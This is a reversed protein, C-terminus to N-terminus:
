DRRVQRSNLFSRQLEEDGMKAAISNVVEKALDLHERARRSDGRTEHLEAQSLIVKWQLPLAEIKEAIARAEGLLIEAEELSKEPLRGSAVDKMLLQAKTRKTIVIYKKLEEEEGMSALEECYERVREFDGKDLHIEILATLVEPAAETTQFQTLMERAQGLYDLASEDDGLLHHDLGISALVGTKETKMGMEDFLSLAEAHYEMAKDIDYVGQYVNGIGWLGFAAGDKDGIERNIALSERYSELAQGYDGMQLHTDGTNILAIGVNMKDGVENSIRLAETHYQLAEAYDGRAGLINGVNTLCGLEGVKFGIERNITLSEEHHRMAEGYDGMGWNVNGINTLSGAIGRRYGMERRLRLTEKHCELAEDYDGRSWHINGIMSLSDGAGMKDGAERRLELAESIYELADTYDGRSWYVSGISELSDAVERRDGLERRIDLAMEHFSLGGDYDGRRSRIAGIAGLCAGVGKQFGIKEYIQRSREVYAMAADLDGEVIYVESMRFLADGQKKEDKEERALDHALQYEELATRYEGVVEYTEGLEESIAIADRRTDRGLRHLIVKAKRYLQIAEQNAYDERAQRASRVACAFAKEWEEAREYHYVLRGNLVELRGAYVEELAEGVQRHWLKRRVKSIGSYLIDVMLSHVFHYHGGEGEINERIIHARVGAEVVDLIGETKQVKSLVDFEFEEGVLAACAFVEKMGPALSDMRRQLVAYISLPIERIEPPCSDIGKTSLYKLMEEVFFPNGETKQYLFDEYDRSANSGPCLLRIMTSVDEASLPSLSVEESLKERRLTGAFRVLRPESEKEETRYTGCLLAGADKLNHVLYHFLDLSAEDSWHLDEIVFLLSGPSQISVEHVLLRVAEFLRFSDSARELESPKMDKLRPLIRALERQSYEPLQSLLSFGADKKEDFFRNFAERFPYYPISRTEEHCDGLLAVGGNRELVQRLERVLRTKGVGAEGHILVLRSGELKVSELISKLHRLEEERGVIYPTSVLPHGKSEEPLQMEGCFDDGGKRKVAYLAQDAWDVLEDLSKGSEAYFSYGLSCTVPKISEGKENTWSASRLNEKIREAVSRMGHEEIDPMIVVFEDGAYRCLIDSPRVSSSLLEGVQALVRDGTLHGHMDNIPKFNDLDIMALGFSLGEKDAKRKEALLKERFYRRNHLGTLDDVYELRREQGGNSM